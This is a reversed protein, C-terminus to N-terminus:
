VLNIEEIDESAARTALRERMKAMREERRNKREVAEERSPTGRGSIGVCPLPTPKSYDDSSFEKESLALKHYKEFDIWTHWTNNKKYGRKALMVVRSPIHEAVLEYDPLHEALDRAFAVVEEHPPMNALSLRQRSAGVFMYGKVEIFDPDGTEILAAYKEPEVMNIGNVATLRICTRQRKQSLYELSRNLREWYDSFLPVDINKLLEKTPADLSLYLQTVPALDRIAEPYQANTVMFTSISRQNFLAILENIRPYIIPEGTLSLAVHRAEQAQKYLQNLVKDNGGYGTLLKQHAKIGEDLIMEPNDVAWRWEKSVPAKYGRWCFVCRNACSISTTMQLCQHSRIGYFKLKYCGGRGRLMNKTWGCTKVASHSGVLRYQQRELEHRAEQTLM